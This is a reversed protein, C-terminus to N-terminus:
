TDNQSHFSDLYSVGHIVKRPFSTTERITLFKRTKKKQFRLKMLINVAAQWQDMDKALNIWDM